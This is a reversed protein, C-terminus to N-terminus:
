ETGLEERDRSGACCDERPPCVAREPAPLRRGGGRGAPRHGGWPRAPLATWMWAASVSPEEPPRGRMAKGPPPWAAALGAFRPGLLALTFIDAEFRSLISTPRPHNHHAACIHLLKSAM